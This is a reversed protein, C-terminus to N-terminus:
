AARRKRGKKSAVSFRLGLGGLVSQITAFHPNGQESLTKYLSERGLNATKAVKKMGGNAQAVNRVAVLFAETSEQKLVEELYRAAFDLDRLDEFLSSASIDKLRM